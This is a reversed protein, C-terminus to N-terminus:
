TNVSIIKSCKVKNSFNKVDVRGPQGQLCHSTDVWQFSGAIQDNGLYVHVMYQTNTSCNPYILLYELYLPLPFQYTLVPSAQSTYYSNSHSDILNGLVSNGYDCIGSNHANVRYCYPRGTTSLLVGNPARYTTKHYPSSYQNGTLVLEQFELVRSPTSSSVGNNIVLKRHISSANSNDQIYITGAGGKEVSSRGGYAELTGIFTKRGGYYLALRGGAGGGGYPTGGMFGSGGNVELSGEGDFNFTSVAISGGSGGGGRITAGMAAEGNAHVRGELRFMRKVVILLIGGGRGGRHLSNSGGGSGWTGPVYLSGYSSATGLGATGRGGRGGHGGGSPGTVYSTAAAGRAPGQDSDHGRYDASM